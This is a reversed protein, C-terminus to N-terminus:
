ILIVVVNNMILNQLQKHIKIEKAVKFSKIPFNHCPTLTNFGHNEEETPFVFCIVVCNIFIM